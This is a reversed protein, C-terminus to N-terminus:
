GRCFEKTKASAAQPGGNKQLKCFRLALDTSRPLAQLLDITPDPCLPATAEVIVHMFPPAILRGNMMGGNERMRRIGDPGMLLGLRQCLWGPHSTEMLKLFRNIDDHTEWRSELFLFMTDGFEDRFRANREMESLVAGSRLFHNPMRELRSPLGALAAPRNAGLFAILSGEIGEGRQARRVFLDTLAQDPIAPDLLAERLRPLHAEVELGWVKSLIELAQAPTPPPLEPRKPQVLPHDPPGFAQEFVWKSDHSAHDDGGWTFWRWLGCGTDGPPLIFLVNDPRDWCGIM